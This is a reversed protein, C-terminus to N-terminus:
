DDAYAGRRAIAARREIENVIRDVLAHSDEGPQQHIEIKGIHIGGATMGGAGGHGASQAAAPSAGLAMAGALGTAMKGIAKIPEREGRTVGLALGETLQGGMTMFLRSPSKIGLFNKINTIGRMVISKLANWVADPAARIGNVLGTIIAKGITLMRGPLATLFDIGAGFVAKISGWHKSVLSVALGIPGFLAPFKQFKDKLWTWAQGLMAVGSHFAGKITDWHKWILYGAVAIAAVILTIVLVIPNALMMLGAKMVGKAMFLAATRLLTFAKTVGGVTQLIKYTKWIGAGMKVLNGLVVLLPGVAALTALSGIIFKQTAPSLNGFKQAVSGAIQALQTMVPLVHQGAQIAAAKFQNMAIISKAADQGAQKAYAADLENGGGRMSKLTDRYAEAQGGTLGLVANLAETSGFLKLMEANNGGLQTRIRSLAPVLGGSQAILDKMDKAGLANFVKRSHATERTLGAITARLQTYAQSAPLGTTTLAATSAMFEDFEIGAEAVTGAVGGFGQALQSINTKGNKVTKFITDYIRNAKAGELRFANLASTSLNAAEQTTGLGAVGLRASKHLVNMADSAGIGASRIDYLAPPLQGLEVPVKRGISLVQASMRSMSEVNTDVLTSINGMSANFDKAMRGSAVGAAVLPATVYMSMGRGAAIMSDGRQRWNAATSNIALLRNQQEIRNNVGQLDRALKREHDGLRRVDVGTKKLEGSLYKAKDGAKKEALEMRTLNKEASQIQRVLQKTPPTGAVIQGRLRALETRAGATATRANKWEANAKRLGGTNGMARHLNAAEGRLKKMTEGGGRAAGVINKVPGSLKDVGTLLITLALKKDM